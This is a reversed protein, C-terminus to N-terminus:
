LVAEPQSDSEAPADIKGASKESSPVSAPPTVYDRKVSERAPRGRPAPLPGFRTWEGSEWTHVAFEYKGLESLLSCDVSRRKRLVAQDEGAIRFSVCMECQRVAVTDLWNAAQTGVWSGVNWAAGQTFLERAEAHGGNAPLSTMAEDWVVLTNTRRKINRLAQTWLYGPSGPREWGSRDGIAVSSIQFVVRPYRLLDAPDTTVHAGLLRGYRACEDPKRKTDIWVWSPVHRLGMYEWYTKGSRTAGIILVREATSVRM